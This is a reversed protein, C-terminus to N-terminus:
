ESEDLVLPADATANHGKIEKTKLKRLRDSTRKNVKKVVNKLKAGDQMKPEKVMRPSNFLKPGNCTKPGNLM